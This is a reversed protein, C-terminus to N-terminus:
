ASRVLESEVAPTAARWRRLSDQLAEEVPRMRVGTALLKSVDLICNSRPAKAGLRYFEADDKWFEFPRDLKLIRRMMAVIQRTIVAGPNSVNYIGFPAQQEWLDLCARVFDGLHSMSNVSDYVRPYQQIKSLTNRPEDHENFPLGPRWIYCHGVGRIADEALAKTGSYFSCPPQLFSFNPDDLETFGHIREPDEALLYRIEPRNLDQEIRSEGNVLVKAGNYIGGSSVHGWPTNAM